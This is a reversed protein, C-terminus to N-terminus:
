SSSKHLQQQLSRSFSSRMALSFFFSCSRLFFCFFSSFFSCFLFSLSSFFALLAALCTLSLSRHAAAQRTWWYLHNQARQVLLCSNSHLSDPHLLDQTQLDKYTTLKM